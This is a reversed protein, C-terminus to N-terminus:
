LYRSSPLINQSKPINKKALWSALSFVDGTQDLVALTM